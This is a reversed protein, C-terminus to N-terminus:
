KDEQLIKILEKKTKKEGETIFGKEQALIKLANINM